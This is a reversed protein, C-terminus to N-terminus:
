EGQNVWPDHFPDTAGASQQLPTDEEFTIKIFAEEIEKPSMSDNSTAM